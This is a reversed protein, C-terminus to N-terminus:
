GPQDVVSCAYHAHESARHEDTRGMFYREQINLPSLDEQVRLGLPALEASLTLPDFGTQMPEGLGAVARLMYHIRPAAKEPVFVDTDLYDFVVMSGAPAIAAIARFTAFVAERPLYYTVGLWSFFTLAQPDYSTRLLASALSERTFDVPVFHLHAPLEWGLEALRRRKFSQMAPHDVEFVRLKEVLEPRRFAFTDMGAGLIVYQRVGERVAEGLREETYRARGLVIPLSSIRQMMSRMASDRDPFSAARVPDASRLGTLFSDEVAAREEGTLLRFALFDDFVKPEDHVAHYGRFYATFLATRSVRNEEM